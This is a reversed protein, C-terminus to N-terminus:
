VREFAGDEFCKLIRKKVQKMLFNLLTTHKMAYNLYDNNM